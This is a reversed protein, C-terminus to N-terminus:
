MLPAVLRLVIGTARYLVNINKYYEMDVEQSKALTDQFDKEIDSIVSSNYMYLGNEFHHYFSRYDM